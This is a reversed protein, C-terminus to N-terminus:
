GQDSETECVIFWGALSHKAANQKEQCKGGFVVFCEM